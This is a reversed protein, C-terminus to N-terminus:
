DRLEPLKTARGLGSAVLLGVIGTTTAIRSRPQLINSHAVSVGQGMLTCVLYGSFDILSQRSHLPRFLHLHFFFFLAAVSLHSSYRPWIFSVM